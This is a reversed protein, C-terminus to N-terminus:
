SSLGVGLALQPWVLKMALKRFSATRSLSRICSRSIILGPGVHLEHAQGAQKLVAAFDRGQRRFEPSENEGHGIIIPYRVLDLHRM